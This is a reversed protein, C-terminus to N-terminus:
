LILSDHTPFVELIMSDLWPGWVVMGILGYRLTGCIGTKRVGGPITVEGGGQAAM